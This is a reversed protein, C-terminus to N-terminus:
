DAVPPPLISSATSVPRKIALPLRKYLEGLPFTDNDVDGAAAEFADINM